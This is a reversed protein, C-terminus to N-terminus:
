LNTTQGEVTKLIALTLLTVHQTTESLVAFNYGSQREPVTYCALHESAPLSPLTVGSPFLKNGLTPTFTSKVIM